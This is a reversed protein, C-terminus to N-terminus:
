NYLIILITCIIMGGILEYVYHLPIHMKIIWQYFFFFAIKYGFEISLHRNGPWNAHNSSAPDSDYDYLTRLLPPPCPPGWGGSGEGEGGAERGRM